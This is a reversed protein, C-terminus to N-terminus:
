SAFEEEKPGIPPLVLNVTHCLMICTSSLLDIRNMPWINNLIRWDRVRGIFKEVHIRTYAIDFNTQIDAQSFQDSQKQKPRKLTVGKIACLDQISFGKDTMVEHGENVYSLVGTKATIDTDSISGPYTSMVLYLVWEMHQYVLIPKEM